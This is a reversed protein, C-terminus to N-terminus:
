RRVLVVGLILCAVGALRISTIPHQPLGLLGVQDFALAGIMQGVVIFALVSAAGLLTARHPDRGPRLDRRSARREVGGLVPAGADRGDPASGAGGPGRVLTALAGVAYSAFAAWWPSGLTARLHANVVQQLALGAGAGIVALSLALNLISPMRPELQLRANPGGPAERDPVSTISGARYRAPTVGFARRFDRGLHSQDAFGTDAAVAAPAVGARLLRRAANLRLLARFPQPSLGHRRRFARSFAERTM